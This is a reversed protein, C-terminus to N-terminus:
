RKHWRRDREGHGNRYDHHHQQDHHHEHRPRQGHNRYNDRDDQHRQEDRDDCPAPRKEGISYEGLVSRKWWSLSLRRKVKRLFVCDRRKVYDVLQEDFDQDFEKPHARDAHNRARENWEAHVLSKCEVEDLLGLLALATAFYVEEPAWCKEFATWLEFKPLMELVAHVHSRCLVCWGPLAKHIADSPVHQEVPSWCEREEFRTAQLKNYYKVYSVGHQLSSLAEQLSVVPICSETGFYVHTVREDKLAEKALSLMSKVIRVDNWQPKHSISLLKSKSWESAIMEPHKAHLYLSAESGDKIWYKWIDEHPLDDVICLCVALHLLPSPISTEHNKRKMSKKLQSFHWLQTTAELLTTADNSVPAEGSSAAQFTSLLSRFDNSM